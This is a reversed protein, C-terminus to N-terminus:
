RSQSRSFHRHTASRGGQRSGDQGWGRDFNRKRPRDILGLVAETVMGLTVHAVLGRAHAQWPYKRPGSALGLAPALMEDNVVFLALGYLAGGAARVAPARHRLVGYLAGPLAGLAYHSAIGLANPQKTPLNLGTIRAVKEVAVHAVDKGVQAHSRGALAAKEAPNLAVDSGGARAHLERALAEKNEHNYMFWGVKDMAWVGVAGAATGAILSGVVSRRRSGRGAPGPKEDSKM